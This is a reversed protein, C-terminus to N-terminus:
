RALGLFRAVFHRDGANDLRHVAEEAPLWLATHGPEHPDGHARVPRALYITCLKEAWLDYEPMFTFRRFAGLRRRIDIRWGTEEFVERHLAALPSEGRDIGGGPLQYEPIPEAQHTVLLAGDRELVAYAGPRIRYRQGPRVPEGFRRIM